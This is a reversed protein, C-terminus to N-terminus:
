EAEVVSLAEIIRHERVRGATWFGTLAGAVGATMWDVPLVQFVMQTGGTAFALAYVLLGALLPMAWAIAISRTWFYHRAGWAALLFGAFLAFAVQGRELSRLLLASIALGAAVGVGLCALSTKGSAPDGNGQRGIKRLTLLLPDFHALSPEAPLAVDAEALAKRDDEDLDESLDHWILGPALRGVLLRAVGAVLEAVLVIGAMALLDLLLLGYLSHLSGDWTWLLTSLSPSRLMIGGCAAMVVLLCGEPRSSPTLLGAIAAVVWVVAALGLLRLPHAGALFTIPAEPDPGLFAPSILYYVAALGALAVVTIQAKEVVLRYQPPVKWMNM